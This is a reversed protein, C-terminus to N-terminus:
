RDMELLRVVDARDQPRGAATKMAILSERSIVWLDQTGVARKERANWFTKLNANVLLLDLMLLQNGTAKSVRHITLGDSFTMPPTEVVFGCKSARQKAREVDEPQILLDIDQTARPAGWVAVALGGVLAYDISEEESLARVLAM